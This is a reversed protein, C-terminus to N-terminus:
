SPIKPLYKEEMELVKPMGLFDKLETASAIEKSLGKTTGKEKIETLARKIARYASGLATLPYSIVRCHTGEFDKVTLTTDLWGVMTIWVPKGVAQTFKKLGDLNSFAKSTPKVMDAGAEVYARAREIAEEGHADTRAIILFDPDIRADCAAKIKGIMEEKTVIDVADTVCAPCRKPELQDEMAVGAIGSREFEKITHAVNIANGYGTDVDSVVPINVSGVINRVVLLNDTLTLYGADPKGLYCASIGYGTTSVLQFGLDEALKATLADYVGPSVVVTGGKLLERVRKTSKM